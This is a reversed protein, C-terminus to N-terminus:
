RDENPMTESEPANLSPIVKAGKLQPDIKDDPVKSLSYLLRMASKARTEPDWGEQYEGREEDYMMVFVPIETVVKVYGDADCVWDGEAHGNMARSYKRCCLKDLKKMITKGGSYDLLDVTIGGKDWSRLLKMAEEPKFTAPDIERNAGNWDNGDADKGRDPFVSRVANILDHDQDDWIFERIKKAKPFKPNFLEGTVFFKGKSDGDKVIGIRVNTLVYNHLM